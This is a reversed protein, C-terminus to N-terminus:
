SGWPFLKSTEAAWLLAHRPWMPHPVTEISNASTWPVCMRKLRPLDHRGNYSHWRSLFSWLNEPIYSWRSQELLNGVLGNPVYGGLLAPSPAPPAKALLSWAIRTISASKLLIFLHINPNSAILLIYASPYTAPSWYLWYSLVASSALTSLLDVISMKRWSCWGSAVM